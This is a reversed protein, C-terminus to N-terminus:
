EEGELFIKFMDKLISPAAHKDRMHINDWELLKTKIAELKNNSKLWRKYLSKRMTLKVFDGEDSISYTTDSTTTGM